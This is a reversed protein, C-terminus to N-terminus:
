PQKDTGRKIYRVSIPILSLYIPTNSVHIIIPSKNIVIYKVVFASLIPLFFTKVSPDIRYINVPTM